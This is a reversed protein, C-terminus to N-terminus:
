EDPPSVERPTGCGAALLNTSGCSLGVPLRAMEQTKDRHTSPNTCGDNLEDVWSTLLLGRHMMATHM